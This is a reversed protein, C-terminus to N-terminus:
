FSPSIWELGDNEENPQLCYNDTLFFALDGQGLVYVYPAISDYWMLQSATDQVVHDANVRYTFDPFYLGIFEAFTRPDVGDAVLARSGDSQMLFRFRIFGPDVNM